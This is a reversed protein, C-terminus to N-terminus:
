RQKKCQVRIAVGQLGLESPLRGTAVGAVRPQAVTQEGQVKAPGERQASRLAGGPSRQIPAAVMEGFGVSGVPGAYLPKRLLVTAHLSLLWGVGPLPLTQLRVAEWDPLLSRLWAPSLDNIHGPVRLPFRLLLARALQWWREHPIAALLLGGPKVTRALERVAREPEVVHELVDTCMVLDFSDSTFPLAKINAVSMYAESVRQQAEVIRARSFDCGYLMSPRAAFRRHLQLLLYGDGCGADLIRMERACSLYRDAFSVFLRLRAAFFARTFPDSKEYEVDGIANRRVRERDERPDVTYSGAYASMM